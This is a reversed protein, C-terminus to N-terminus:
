KIGLHARLFEIAAAYAADVAEPDAGGFGHEGNELSILRHEVGAGEFEASMQVSQEYPVDTDVTGHILVTPPYKATVNKAPMYPTFKDAETRPDWGSVASPWLGHQRCHEYFLGGDGQRDRSDSIVPGSVQKWAEERSVHKRHHRPHPSPESYWPAIIDGYGYLSVLAQPPPDVRYGAILTLYGGASGGAVGIRAPDAGFLAPGETRVWRFADEIDAIIEPLKTEPALRYDISVFVCGASLMADRLRKDVNERHGGILGGGHIWVVVPRSEGAAAGYVDVEIALDEVQKYTHTTRLPEAAFVRDGTGLSMVTAVPVIWALRRNRASNPNM